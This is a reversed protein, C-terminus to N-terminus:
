LCQLLKTVKLKALCVRVGERPYEGTYKYAWNWAKSLEVVSLTIIVGPM